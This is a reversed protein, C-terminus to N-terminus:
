IYRKKCIFLSRIALRLEKAFLKRVAFVVSGKLLVCRSCRDITNYRLYQCMKNVLRATLDSNCRETKKQTKLVQVM